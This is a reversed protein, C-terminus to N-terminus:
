TGNTTRLVIFLLILLSILILSVLHFIHIGHESIHEDLFHYQTKPTHSLATPPILKKDIKKESQIFPATPRPQFIVTNEELISLEKQKYVSLKEKITNLRNKITIINEKSKEVRKEARRLRKKRNIVDENARDLSSQLKIEQEKKVTKPKEIKKKELVKQRSKLRKLKESFEEVSKRSTMITMQSKHLVDTENDLRSIAHKLSQKERNLLIRKATFNNEIDELFNKYLHLNEYEIDLPQYLVGKRPRIKEPSIKYIDKLIEDWKKNDKKNLILRFNPTIIDKTSDIVFLLEKKKNFFGTFLFLNHEITKEFLGSKSKNQLIKTIKTM